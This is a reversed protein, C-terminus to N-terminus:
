RNQLSAGITQNLANIANTVENIARVNKEAAEQNLKREDNARQRELYWIFFFSAALAFPGAGQIVQWLEIM